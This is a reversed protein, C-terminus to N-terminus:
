ERAEQFRFMVFENDLNFGVGRRKVWSKVLVRQGGNRGLGTVKSKAGGCGPSSLGQIEKEISGDLHHDRESVM